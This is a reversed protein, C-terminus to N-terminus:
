FGEGELGGEGDGAADAGVVAGGGAELEVDVVDGDGLANGVFGGVGDLEFLGADVEEHLVAVEPDAGGALGGDEADAGGDHARSGFVEVGVVEDAGVRGDEGGVGALAGGLEELHVVEVVAFGVEGM